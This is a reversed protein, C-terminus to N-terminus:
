LGRLIEEKKKKYDEESILGEDLLEKLRRLREKIEMQVSQKPQPKPQPKQQQLNKKKKMEEMRMEEWIQYMIPNTMYIEFSAELGFGITLLLFGGFFTAIVFGSDTNMNLFYGFHGTWYMAMYFSALIALGIYGWECCGRSMWGEKKSKRWLAYPIFYLYLVFPAFVVIFIVKDVWSGNLVRHKFVQPDLFHLGYLGTFFYFALIIAFIIDFYYLFGGLYDREQAM